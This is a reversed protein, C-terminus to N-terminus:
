FNELNNSQIIIHYIGVNGIEDGAFVQKGFVRLVGVDGGNLPFEKIKEGDSKWVRICGDNSSSYINGEGAALAFLQVSHAPWSTNSSLDASYSQIQSSFIILSFNIKYM